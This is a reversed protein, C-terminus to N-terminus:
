ADEATEAITGDGEREGEATGDRIGETDVSSGADDEPNEQATAADTGGQKKAAEEAAQIIGEFFKNIEGESEKVAEEVRKEVTQYTEELKDILPQTIKTFSGLSTGIFFMDTAEGVGPAVEARKKATYTLLLTEPYPRDHTHGAFMFESNAHNAGIGVSAFGVKDNCDINGNVVVYIHVGSEDIGTIIAGISPASHNLLETAVQRIFSPEMERQRTIFTEATLGLPSLIDTEAERLRLKKYSDAYLEAVEKVTRWTKPEAALLGAVKLDVAQLIESQTASDGATLAVISTTFPHIKPTEPEFEIDAATLMRDSAGVIVANGRWECIAAICVTV